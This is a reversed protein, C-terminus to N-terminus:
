EFQRVFHRDFIRHKEPAQTLATAPKIGNTRYYEVIQKNIIKEPYYAVIQGPILNDTLSLDNDLALNWAGETAGYVILAIDLLSQGELARIEM